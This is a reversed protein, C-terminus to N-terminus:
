EAYEYDRMKNLILKNKRFNPKMDFMLDYATQRFVFWNCKFQVNCFHVLIYNNSVPLAGISPQAVEEKFKVRIEKKNEIKLFELSQPNIYAKLADFVYKCEETNIFWFRYVRIDLYSEIKM